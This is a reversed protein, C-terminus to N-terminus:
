VWPQVELSEIWKLDKKNHVVTIVTGAHGPEQGM